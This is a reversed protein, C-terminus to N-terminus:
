DVMGKAFERAAILSSVNYMCFEKSKVDFLGLGNQEILVETGNAGKIKIYGTKTTINMDM